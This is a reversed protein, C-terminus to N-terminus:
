APAYALQWGTCPPGVHVYPLGNLATKMVMILDPSAHSIRFGHPGPLLCGGTCPRTALLLDDTDEEPMSSILVVEGGKPSAWAHGRVRVMQEEMMTTTGEALADAIADEQVERGVSTPPTM